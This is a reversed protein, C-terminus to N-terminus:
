RVIDRSSACTVHVRALRESMAAVRSAAARVSPDPTVASGHWWTGIAVNSEHYARRWNPDYFCESGIFQVVAGRLGAVPVTSVYVSLRGNLHTQIHRCFQDLIWGSGDTKLVVEANHGAAAAVARDLVTRALRLPMM